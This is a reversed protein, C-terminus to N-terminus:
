ARELKACCADGMTILSCQPCINTARFKEALAFAAKPGYYLVDDPAEDMLWNQIADFNELDAGEDLDLHKMMAETTEILRESMFGM